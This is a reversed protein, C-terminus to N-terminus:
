RGRGLPGMVKKRVAKLGLPGMVERRVEELDLELKKHANKLKKIEGHLQSTTPPTKKKKSM